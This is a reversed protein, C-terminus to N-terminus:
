LEIRTVAASVDRGDAGPNANRFEYTLWTAFLIWTLYPLLLVAAMPRVRNFQIVTFLVAIDLVIILILAGTIQGAGFFLPSWALNIVLQLLFLAMALGRGPAGRAAGIMALALGMLVYLVTWVLGFLAPPPYIAPKVLSAFWPNSPGSGAFQGSMFGLLVVLPVCFLAWRWFAARLQFPTAIESM